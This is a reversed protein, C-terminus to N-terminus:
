PILWRSSSLSLFVDGSKPFCTFAMERFHYWTRDGVLQSSVGVTRRPSKPATSCPRRSKSAVSAARVELGLGTTPRGVRFLEPGPGRFHSIAEPGVKFFKFPVKRLIQFIDSLSLVELAHLVRQVQCLMHTSIKSSNRLERRGKQAPLAKRGSGKLGFRRENGSDAKRILRGGHTM